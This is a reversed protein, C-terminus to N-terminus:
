ARPNTKDLAWKFEDRGCPSLFEMGQEDYVVLCFGGDDMMQVRTLWLIGDDTENPYFGSQDAVAVRGPHEGDAFFKHGNRFERLMTFRMTDTQM